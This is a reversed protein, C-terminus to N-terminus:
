NLFNIIKAKILRLYNKLLEIIISLRYRKANKDLLLKKCILLKLLISKKAIQHSIQNHHLRYKVVIKKVYAIERQISIRLWLEYDEIAQLSRDENFGGVELFINKRIIVSSNTIFNSKILHPFIKGSYLKIKPDIFDQQTNSFEIRPGYVLDVNNHNLFLEVQQKLKDEIWIDDADLFAILDGNSSRVGQNRAAAPGANQQFIYIIQKQKIYNELIEKTNDTSGDDVVIIEYAPFTQKLVSDIAEALYTASNYTPIIVSVKINQETM